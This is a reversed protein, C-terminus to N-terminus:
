LNHVNYEKCIIKGEILLTEYKIVGSEYWERGTGDFVEFGHNWNSQTELQGNQYM